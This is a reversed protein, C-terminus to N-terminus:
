RRGVGAAAPAVTDRGTPASASRRSRAAVVAAAGPLRGPGPDHRRLPLSRTRSCSTPCTRSRPCASSRARTSTPAGPCPSRHAPRRRPGAATGLECTPRRAPRQRRLRVRHRRPRLPHRAPHRRPQVAGLHRPASPPTRPSRTTSAGRAAADADWPCRSSTSTSAGHATRRAAPLAAFRERDPSGSRASSCGRAPRLRRRGRAVATSTTSRTATPTRTPATPARTPRTPCRRRGQRAPGGLRHPLRRRGPGVLLAPHGRLEDRVEPNEWNLDPQEPAFLHLYWDGPTGDPEHDPDLRARRLHVALREAATRRGPRPRRRFLFRDRQPSGPGAALAAQFWPHQDSFHNPVLDLIM